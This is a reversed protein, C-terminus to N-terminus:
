SAKSTEPKMVAQVARAAASSAQAVSEPIDMPSHACGCVFIGPRTSDLPDAPATKFFGYRDIEIDLTDAIKQTGDVPACATALVVLDFAERTVKRTQTDEYILVPNENQDKTIEAV